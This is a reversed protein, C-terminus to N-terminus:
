RRSHGTLRALAAARRASYTKAEATASAEIEDRMRLVSVWQDCRDVIVRGDRIVGTLVPAVERAESLTILGIPRGLEESLQGRLRTMSSLDRAAPGDLLLDIDSGPHDEARAVSGFLVLLDIGLNRVAVSRLVECVVERTTRTSERLARRASMGFTMSVAAVASV